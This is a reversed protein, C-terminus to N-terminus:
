LCAIYNVFANFVTPWVQIISLLISFVTLTIIIRTLLINQDEVKKNHRDSLVTNIVLARIVTNNDISHDNVLGQMAKNLKEHSARLYRDDSFLEDIEQTALATPM